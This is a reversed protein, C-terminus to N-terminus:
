VKCTDQFQNTQHTQGKSKQWKILSKCTAVMTILMDTLLSDFSRFCFHCFYKCCLSYLTNSCNETEFSSGSVTIVLKLCLADTPLDDLIIHM